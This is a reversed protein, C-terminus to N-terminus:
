SAAVNLTTIYAKLLRRRPRQYPSPRGVAPQGAPPTGAASARRARLDYGPPPPPPASPQVVDADGLPLEETHESVVPV